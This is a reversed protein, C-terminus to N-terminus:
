TKGAVSGSLWEHALMMAKRELGWRYGGLAGSSRIVRHCPILYAIPNAGVANAVARTADPEGIRQALDQYSILSQEPMRLLAEWVKLQFNTGKLHLLLSGEKMKFIQKALRSTAQDNRTWKARSWKDHLVQVDLDVSNSEVFQLHCIGRDTTAMLCDGFPSEAIGFQMRQGAGHRAYEGPTMAEANIMLDHLRGPGSVGVQLATDLIPLSERLLLKAQNATLFQLFRKPSVGVWKRFLRQFYPPSLGARIALTELSPQQQSSELLYSIAQQIKDFDSNM